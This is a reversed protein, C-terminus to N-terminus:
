ISLLTADFCVSSAPEVGAVICHLTKRSYQITWDSTHLISIVKYCFQCRHTASSRSEVGHGLFHNLEALLLDLLYAMTVNLVVAHM